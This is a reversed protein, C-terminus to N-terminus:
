LLRVCLGVIGVELKERKDDEVGKAITLFIQLTVKKLVAHIIAM